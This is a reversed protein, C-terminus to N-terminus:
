VRPSPAGGAALQGAGQAFGAGLERVVDAAGTLEHIESVCVGAYLPTVDALESSMGATMGQPSFLPVGVRQREIVAAGAAVSMLARAPVALAGVAAVWAPGAERRRCWRETARNPVVRHPAPWAVGFLKTVLTSRAALLREQYTPHAGSEHTLLFRTGAAVGAAGHEAARAASQADHVGGAAVVPRGGAEAVVTRLADILPMRALLHGGAERGQVILADAGDAVARRAEAATGVQQLVFIGADRLRRVTRASHGFFLSVAAPREALCADVHAACVFPMLLNAAIPRGDSLAKARRIARAYASPALTGVTGLGGARSVAAALEAKVIGGGMGAQLVPYTLGLREYWPASLTM